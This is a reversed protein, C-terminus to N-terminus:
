STTTPSRKWLKFVIEIVNRIEQGIACLWVFSLLPLYTHMTQIDMEVSLSKFLKKQFNPNLKGLDHFVTVLEAIKSDTLRRLM